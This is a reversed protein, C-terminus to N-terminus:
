GACVARLFLARQSFISRWAFKSCSTALAAASCSRPAGSSVPAPGGGDRPPAGPGTGAQAWRDCRARFSARAFPYARTGPAGVAASVAWMRVCGARCVARRAADPSTRGCHLLAKPPVADARTSPRAVGLGGTLRHALARHDPGRTCTCSWPRRGPGSPTPLRPLPWGAIWNGHILAPEELLRLVETWVVEDLLNQRVPRAGCVSEGLAAVPRVRHLSLVSDQARDVADLHALVFHGCM